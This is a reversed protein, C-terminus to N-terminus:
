FIAASKGVVIDLLFACKMKNKAKTTTGLLLLLLVVRSGLFDFVLVFFDLEANEFVILHVFVIANDASTAFAGIFATTSSDKHGVM